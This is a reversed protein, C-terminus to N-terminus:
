SGLDDAAYRDPLVGDSNIAFVRRWEADSVDVTRLSDGGVGASCVLVDIAGLRREVDAVAANVQASDSVDAVAAIASAGVEAAVAAAAPEDRDLIAVRAGDGALRLACARGIGSGGGTIVAVRNTFDSRSTTSM